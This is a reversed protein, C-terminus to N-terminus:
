DQQSNQAPVVLRHRLQRRSDIWTLHSPVAAASSAMGPLGWLPTLRKTSSTRSLSSLRSSLSRCWSHAELAAAQCMLRAHRTTLCLYAIYRRVPTDALVYAHSVPVPEHLPNVKARIYHAVRSVNTADLAADVEDLVFFPSPRYSHIAFLLALSALTKEGGVDDYLSTPTWSPPM